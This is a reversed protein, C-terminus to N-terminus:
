IPLLSKRKNSILFFRSKLFIKTVGLIKRLDLNWQVMNLHPRSFIHVMFEIYLKVINTMELPLGCFFLDSIFALWIAQVKPLCCKKVKYPKECIPCLVEGQRAHKFLHRNVTEFDDINPQSKVEFTESCHKCSWVCDNFTTKETASDDLPKKKCAKKCARVHNNHHRITKSIQPCRFCPIQLNPEFQHIEVHSLFQVENDSKFNCKLCSIIPFSAAM